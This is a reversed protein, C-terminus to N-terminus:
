LTVVNCYGPCHVTQKTNYLDILAIDRDTNCTIAHFKKTISPTFIPTTQAYNVAKFMLISSFDLLYLLFFVYRMPTKILNDLAYIKYKLHAYLGM